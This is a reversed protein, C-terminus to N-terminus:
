VDLVEKILPRIYIIFNKLTEKNVDFDNINGKLFEIIEEFDNGMKEQLEKKYGELKQKLEYYDYPITENEKNPNKSM